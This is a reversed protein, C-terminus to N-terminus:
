LQICSLAMAYLSVHSTVAEPLGNIYILFLTLGLVSGQPVGSTVPLDSSLTGRVAVRQTRDTLFGQIWNVIHPHIGDILRIKQMLLNHPVKDFATKFDLVVAHTTSKAELAKALDNYTACLQNKCSLGKRCGHQRNYLVSDLSENLYHLVIHELMKCPISTLSIPRYNGAENKPGKKLIPTINATKWDRPLNGNNISINCISALCEANTKSDVLLECKRILDPGPSKNNKLNHILKEM